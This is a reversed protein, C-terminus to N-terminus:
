SRQVRMNGVGAWSEHFPRYGRNYLRRTHWGNYFFAFAISTIPTFIINFALILFFGLWDGRFLSPFPGFFLTTWSFGVPASKTHGNYSNFMTMPTAMMCRKVV